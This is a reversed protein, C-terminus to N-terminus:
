RRTPVAGRSRCRRLWQPRRAPDGSAPGPRGSARGAAAVLEAAAAPTLLTLQPTHEGAGGGASADGDAAGSALRDGDSPNGDTVPAQDGDLVLVATAPDALLGPILQPDARLHASRDLTSRSLALRELTM